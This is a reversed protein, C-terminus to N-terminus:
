RSQAFFLVAPLALFIMILVIIGVPWWGAAGAVLGVVSLVALAYPAMRNASSTIGDDKRAAHLWLGAAMLLLSLGLWLWFLVDARIWPIDMVFIGCSGEQNPQPYTAYTYVKAFIFNNLVVDGANLDWHVTEQADPAVEVPTTLDRWRALSPESIFVQVQPRLTRETPNTFTISFRTDESRNMFVPCSMGSIPQYGVRPFGYSVSEVDPWVMLVTLVFALLVGASLLPLGFNRKSPDM